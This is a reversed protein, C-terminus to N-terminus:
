GYFKGIMQLTSLSYELCKNEKYTLGWIVPRGIFVCKAGLALAKLVDTGRRIGGDVYVEVCSRVAEVIEPLVEITASVGDLQRGGHNSVIIGQVGHRVALEADEKTLIGKLIIPLDTLSRLWQIDSWTVAPDLVDNCLPLNDNRDKDKKFIEFNKLKLHAPIKFDNLMDKRRKGIYPVDVTVVLAKYGLSKVRQVLRETVERRKFVYLQFWCCGSSVAVIDELSCTAYTSAIYCTKMADAAKAICVEGDPCAMSSIGTPAIGVPFSIETGQITTRMDVASVDRLVRPRLRIRKFALLNRDRSECDDAGGAYFDWVASPLFCETYAEFDDLCIMSM